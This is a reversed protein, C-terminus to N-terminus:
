RPQWSSGFESYPTATLPRPRTANLRLVFLDFQGEAAHDSTFLIARGDPSFRPRTESSHHWGFVRHLNGGDADVVYIDSDPKDANSAIVLQRGDPSWDPYTADLTPPTVRHPHTGDSHITWVAFSGAVSTHASFAILKGDPSYEANLERFNGTKTLARPNSGDANMVWLDPDGVCDTDPYHDFLITKGGPSWTPSAACKGDLAIEKQDSGNARMVYLHLVGDARIGDFALRKGDPSWSPDANIGDHTLQVRGGGGARMAFVQVQSGLSLDFAIRGNRGPWAAHAATGGMLSPAAAAVAAVVCMWRRMWRRMGRRNGRM